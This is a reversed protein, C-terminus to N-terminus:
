ENKVRDYIDVIKERYAKIKEREQFDKMDPLVEQLHKWLIFNQDGKYNTIAYKISLPNQEPFITKLEHYNIDQRAIVKKNILYEFLEKKWPRHLTEYHHSLLIPKLIGTWRRAVSIVGHNLSEAIEIFDKQTISEIEQIDTDIKGKFLSQLIFEDESIDFKGKLINKDRSLNIYRVRVATYNGRNLSHALQKWTELCEGNKAVESLILYDEEKSFKGKSAPPNLLNFTYHFVDSAHRVKPLDQGLYCGLVNRKRPLKNSMKSLQPLAFDKMCKSPNLVPVNKILENWHKLITASEGLEGPTFRGVIILGQVSLKNLVANKNATTISALTVNLHRVPINRDLIYKVVKDVECESNEPNLNDLLDGYGDLIPSFTTFNNSEM